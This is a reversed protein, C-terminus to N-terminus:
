ERRRQALVLGVLYYGDPAVNAPADPPARFRHVRGFGVITRDEAVVLSRDPRILDDRLRAERDARVGGSHLMVLWAVAAIDTLTAQRITPTSRNM